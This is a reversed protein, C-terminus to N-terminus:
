RLSDLVTFFTPFSKAVCGPDAITVGDVQTGILAFSMAMRHDDYTQVVGGTPTSPYVTFGDTDETAAIGLRKLEGVTAAIRDTEKARIFGIGTVTTPTAAFAAVVALTQATDSIDAMDCTIGNLPGTRSVTTAHADYTVTCGMQELLAVFRMDGQMANATLGEVRVSGGSIAALAFFYSAASADPEIAFTTPTYGGAPVVFAGARATVDVGFARMVQTTMAVYPESVLPTLLSVTLGNTMAPGALLLGSLFQSSVDGAVEVTGGQVGKAHMLVPLHGDDGLPDIRVGLARLAAFVPQMPRARFPAAGDLVFGGSGLALLPALFRATTGSLRVDVHASRAPIRGGEGKVTVVSNVRDAAVAFGLTDLATLMAETDDAFLAGTLTSEGAALSAAILARNTLSKSGPLRVTGNVPAVFPLIPRADSASHAKATARQTAVDGQLELQVPMDRERLADVARTADAVSVRVILAGSRRKQAHRMAIDEINVGAEGLAGAVQALQGPEDSLPVVLDIVAGGDVKGVMQQRAARASALTDKMADLDHRDLADRMQALQNMMKDLADLVADRNGDLIPIWLEPDSAAIRTTDRFGGGAVALLADGTKAIAEAAVAALSSAVLQPLHSVIAVMEDHREPSLVLVRAGFTHLLRSLMQLPEDATHEHPTLIWTAGQFLQADAADPGNRESGAMPHGGVFRAATLGAATLRDTVAAVVGVKLSGVDTFVAQKPAATAAVRLCEAVAHSPVAAIVVDADRVADEISDVVTGLKLVAARRRVQDDADTLVVTASGAAHAALAISGGILGAGIVAVNLPTDFGVAGTASM